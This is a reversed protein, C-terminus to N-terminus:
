WVTPDDPRSDDGGCDASDHGDGDLDPCLAYYTVTELPMGEGCRWSVTEKGSVVLDDLSQMALQLMGSYWFPIDIYINFHSFYVDFDPVTFPHFRFAGDDDQLTQSVVVQQVNIGDVYGDVSLVARSLGSTGAIQRIVFEEVYDGPNLGGVIFQLNIDTYYSMAFQPRVADPTCAGVMMDIAVQNPALDFPCHGENPATCHMAAACVGGEDVVGDCDNDRVIDCIETADPHVDARRDDCDEPYSFGDGDIDLGEICVLDYVCHGNYACVDLTCDDGDDCDEHSSCGVCFPIGFHQCEGEFDCVDDTCDNGDDCDTACEIPVEVEETVTRIETCAMMIVAYLTLTTLNKM